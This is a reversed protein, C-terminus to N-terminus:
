LGNFNSESNSYEPCDEAFLFTTEEKFDKNTESKPSM